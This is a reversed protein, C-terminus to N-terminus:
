IFNLLTMQGVKASSQLAAQYAVSAATYNIVLDSLDMDENLSKLEKFTSQQVSMRNKTLTVREGRGGLDTNELSVKDMYGQFKTIYSSYTDHMNQNAYDRQKKAVDLWQNLNKLEASGEAYGGNKIKSEISDVADQASIATQVIELLDDIDRRINSDFVERAETNIQMQQGGAINYYIAQTMWQGNQDYNEYKITEDRDVVYKECDFYYEPRLEGTDFGQKDYQFQFSARNSELATKIKDGFILEGSEADFVIENDAIAYGEQKLTATDSVRYSIDQGGLSAGLSFQDLNGDGDTDKGNVNFDGVTAAPDDPVPPNFPAPPTLSTDIKMNDNSYIKYSAAGTGPQPSLFYGASVTPTGDAANVSIKCDGFNLTGDNSLSINVTQDAADKYSIQLANGDPTINDYSLRLWNLTQEDFVPIDLTNATDPLKSTDDFEGKYYKKQTIDQYSFRETINYHANKADNGDTFTLKQNTKYGTFITRGAYDANGESYIQEQLAQLAKQITQRNETNLEDTAGYVTQEYADKLIGKMNTLATETCEMWAETDPINNQYYQTITSLTSRLRLARIAIIPNDSPKVIKKQTAMQNNTYDVNARNANINTKSRKVIMSNTVRMM